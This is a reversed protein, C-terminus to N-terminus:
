PHFLDLLGYSRRRVPDDRHGSVAHTADLEGAARDAGRRPSPPNRPRTWRDGVFWAFGKRDFSKPTYYGALFFFLGMFFAANVGLFAWVRPIPADLFVIQSVHRAVYAEVSHHAIVLLILAVRLADIYDLRAASRAAERVVPRDSTARIEPSVTAPM